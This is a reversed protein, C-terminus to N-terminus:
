SFALMMKQMAATSEESPALVLRSPAAAEDGPGAPVGALGVAACEELAFLPAPLAAVAAAATAVDGKPPM